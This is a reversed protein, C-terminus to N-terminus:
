GEWEACLALGDVISVEYTNGEVWDPEEAWRVESPFNIVVDGSGATFRMMYENVVGSTGSALTVTLSTVAETWKYLTSPQMQLTTATTEVVKGLARQYLEESSALAELDLWLRWKANGKSPETANDDALSLFVGASTHVIDNEEYATGKAWDGKDTVFATGLLLENSAM